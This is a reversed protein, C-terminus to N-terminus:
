DLRIIQDLLLFRQALSGNCEWQQLQLGQFANNNSVDLCKGSKVNKLSSTASDFFWNQSNGGHLRWIVIKAGNSSSGESVDMVRITNQNSVSFTLRGQNIKIMWNQNSGSHCRWLIVPTGDQIRNQQADFCLGSFSHIIQKQITYPIIALLATSVLCFLIAKKM